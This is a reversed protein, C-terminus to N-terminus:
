YSKPVTVSQALRPGQLDRVLGLLADIASFALGNLYADSYPSAEWADTIAGGVEDGRGKTLHPFLYPIVRGLTRSVTRVREIQEELM